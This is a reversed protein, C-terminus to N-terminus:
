YNWGTYNLSYMSQRCKQSRQQVYKDFKNNNTFTVGLIELDNVTKMPVDGLYWVPESSFRSPDKGCVMCQSKQIGFKLRWEKAYCNCTAILSQLGPVKASFLSIDGAYAFSNYLDDGIPIGSRSQKLETLM